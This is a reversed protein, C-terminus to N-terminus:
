FAIRYYNRKKNWRKHKEVSKRTFETKSLSRWKNKKLLKNERDLENNQARITKIETICLECLWTPNKASYFSEFLKTELFTCKDHYFNECSICQLGRHTRSIGGTCKICKGSPMIFIFIYFCDIWVFDSIQCWQKIFETSFRACIDSIQCYRKSSNLLSRM